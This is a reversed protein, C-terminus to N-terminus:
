PTASAAALHATHASLPRQTARAPPGPGRPPPETWSPSNQYPRNLIIHPNEWIVSPPSRRVIGSAGFNHNSSGGAGARGEGAAGETRRWSGDRARSFVWLWPLNGCRHTELWRRGAVRGNDSLKSQESEVTPEAEPEEEEDLEHLQQPM